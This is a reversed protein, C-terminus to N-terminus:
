RYKRILKKCKKSMQNIDENNFNKILDERAKLGFIYEAKDESIIIDDLSKGYKSLEESNAERIYIKEYLLPLTEIAIDTKFKKGLKQYHEIGHTIEHINILKTKEDYVYPLYLIIEKLKSKKDLAYYCGIFVREDPNQYDIMTSKEQLYDFMKEEYLNHKKFFDIVGSHYKM